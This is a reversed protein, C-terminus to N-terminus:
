CCVLTDLQPYSKGKKSNCSGCLPQINEINNSGGRCVPIIHDITLKIDPEIKKCHPCTFNYQKKLLEWEGITFFGGVQALRARRKQAHVAKYANTKSLGHKINVGKHSDRQKQVIWPAHVKGKNGLGYNNGLKAISIKQREEISKVRGMNSISIKRRVEEPLKRGKMHIGRPM